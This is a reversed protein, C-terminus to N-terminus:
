KKSTGSGYILQQMFDFTSRLKEEFERTELETLGTPFRSDSREWRKLWESGLLTESHKQALKKDNFAITTNRKPGSEPGFGVFFGEALLIARILTSASYTMFKMPRCECHKYLQRFLAQSWLPADTRFSFPDYFILDPPEAMKFTELFDGLYLKWELPDLSHKWYCQKLIAHPAAHRISKFHQPNKLALKLPDLDIEFSILKMACKQMKAQTETQVAAEFFREAEQIVGMANSAAGLGVDWIILNESQSLRDKIKSPGIYITQAEIEPPSVSHMIEGSIRHRISSFGKGSDHVEFDGLRRRKEALTPRRTKAKANPFAEDSRSLAKRKQDYYALFNGSLISERIERMMRHYFSFNHLAILHWGLVEETKHLHHLYAKSYIACTQCDCNPDLTDESFKYVSRRLQLKGQSTFAVGRQALQSPLICDFLDVGRHVAELIDLPTGVGMLYRPLNEPLFSVSLETFDERESKSEGVALGGIAFGDFGVGSIQMESLCEASQKRLDPFCAGQVIAFLSQPSDERARLSRKAWRHTLEMAAQAEPYPATSPICHDLVMMIDSGIARQTQISIEPSLLISKHDVYSQFIAGDEDIKRSHPLSFIQYGGSDTLVPRDWNMFRHIGGFKKLVEPGPRLLLHYTNALLITSGAIKLSEVTQSKVTAQTGVPMFLPTLVEGHLTSFRAARARTGPLTKELKM